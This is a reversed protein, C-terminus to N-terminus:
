SAQQGPRCKAIRRLTVVDSMLAANTVVQLAEFVLWNQDEITLGHTQSEAAPAEVLELALRPTAPADPVEPQAFASPARVSGHRVVNRMWNGIAADSVRVKHRQCILLDPRERQCLFIFDHVAAHYWPQGDLAAKMRAELEPHPFWNRRLTAPRAGDNPTATM